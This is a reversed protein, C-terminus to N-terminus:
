GIPPMEHPLISSYDKKLRGISIVKSNNVREIDSISASNISKNEAIEQTLGLVWQELLDMM